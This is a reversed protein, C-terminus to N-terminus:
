LEFYPSVVYYEWKGEVDKLYELRMMMVQEEDGYKKSGSDSFRTLFHDELQAATLNHQGSSILLSRAPAPHKKLFDLFGLDNLGEM